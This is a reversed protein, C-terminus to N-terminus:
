YSRISIGSSTDYIEYSGPNFNNYFVGNNGYKVTIRCNESRTWRNSCSRRKMSYYVNAAPESSYIKVQVDYGSNNTITFRGM